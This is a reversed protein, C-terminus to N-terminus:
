QELVFKKLKLDEFVLVNIIHTIWFIKLSFINKVYLNKQEYIEIKLYFKPFILKEYKDQHFSQLNRPLALMILFHKWRNDKSNQGQLINGNKIYRSM